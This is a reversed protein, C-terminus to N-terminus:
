KLVEKLFSDRNEKPLLMVKAAYPIVNNDMYNEFEEFPIRTFGILIDSNSCINGDITQGNKTNMNCGLSQLKKQMYLFEQEITTTKIISSATFFKHFEEFDTFRYNLNLDKNQVIMDQYKLFYKASSHIQYRKPNIGLATLYIIQDRDVLGFDSDLINDPNIKHTERYTTDRIKDLWKQNIFKAIAQDQGGQVFYKTSKELTDVIDALQAGLQLGNFWEATRNKFDSNFDIFAALRILVDDAGGRGTKTRIYQQILGENKPNTLDVGSKNLVENWTHVDIEPEGLDYLLGAQELIKIKKLHPQVSLLPDKYSNTSFDELDIGAKMILDLDILYSEGGGYHINFKEEVSKRILDYNDFFAGFFFGKLVAQPNVQLKNFFEIDLLPRSNHVPQISKSYSNVSLVLFDVIENIFNQTQELYEVRSSYIAKKDSDKYEKLIEDSIIKELFTNPRKGPGGNKSNFFVHGEKAHGATSRLSLNHQLERSSIVVDDLQIDILLEENKALDYLWSQKNSLGNIQIEQRINEAFIEPDLFPINEEKINQMREPLEPRIKRQLLTLKNLTHLRNFVVTNNTYSNITNAESDTETLHSLM